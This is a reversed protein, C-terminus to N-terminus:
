EAHLAEIPNVKSAKTAPVLGALAGCVVLVLLSLIASKLNVEPNSFMGTEINWEDMGYSIGSLLLVGAVLGLYGAIMTIFISEQIILGTISFPTAGLSKRIGIEKTREKVIILMINSVGIVGAMLTGIGVIWVFVNIGSFLRNIREFEKQLNNSGLANVDEPHIKHREMLVKRINQEANGVSYGPKATFAFWGVSNGYSFAQQFTSFPIFISQEDREAQQGDRQSKFVGVVQFYVGNAKIYNGIPDENPGFLVKKVYEGIVANKRRNKIDLFNLHRGELIDVLQIHQIEPYDGFVRFAGSKNARTVNNGPNRKSNRPTLYELETIRNLLAEQDENTFNVYRGSQLGKYPMTTRGRWIFGSNSAWGKFEKNVGNELGNGSGMLIMLMFIGWFVGFMTLFTRLKNKKITGLIEQWKDYDFM